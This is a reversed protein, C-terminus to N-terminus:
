HILGFCYPYKITNVRNADSFANSRSSPTLEAEYIPNDTAGVIVFYYNSMNLVCLFRVFSM